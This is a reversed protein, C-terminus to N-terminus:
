VRFCKLGITHSSSMCNSSPARSLVQWDHFDNLPIEKEREEGRESSCQNYIVHKHWEHECTRVAVVNSATMRRCQRWRSGFQHRWWWYHRGVVLRGIPALLSCGTERQRVLSLRKKTSRGERGGEMCSIDANDYVIYPVSVNSQSTWSDYFATQVRFVPFQKYLGIEFFALWRAIEPHTEQILIVPAYKATLLLVPQKFQM